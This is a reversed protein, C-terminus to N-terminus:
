AEATESAEATTRRGRRSDRAADSASRVAAGLGELVKGFQENAGVKSLGVAALEAKGADTAARMAERAGENLKAGIPALYEGELKTKPLLAGAVAGVAIGGVLVALPSAEVREAFRDGADNAAGRARTALAKGRKPEAAKPTPRSPTAATAETM